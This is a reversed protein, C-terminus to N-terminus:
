IMELTSLHEHQANSLIAPRSLSVWKCPLWNLVASAPLNGEIISIGTKSVAM